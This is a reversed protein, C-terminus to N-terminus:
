GVGSPEKIIKVLLTSPQEAQLSHATGSERYLREGERPHVPFTGPSFVCKGESYIWFPPEEEM